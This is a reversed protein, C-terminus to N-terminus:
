GGCGGGKDACEDVSKLTKVITITEHIESAGCRAQLPLGPIGWCFENTADTRGM